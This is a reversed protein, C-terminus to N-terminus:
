AKRVRIPISAYSRFGAIAQRRPEGAPEFLAFRQLLQGFVVNAELRALTAGLCHHPGGGFGVHANPKRGVDLREPEDFQREDHNASGLLLVLIRDKKILRSGILMPERVVRGVNQIPADFRLFEEVATTVLSRDARLRALQDPFQLLAACGTAILNKTTEFGAFFLFLVNDVIEERTLREVGDTAALMHSLLDNRTQGRREKLLGDIYDRLWLIARNATALDQEPVQAGFAKCLDTARPRVEDRETVPIGILECVVMVPLPFALDLVADFHGRDLIPNLINDVLHGIHANLSHVLSPSFAPSMLQRLRTHAPADHNLIIRKFFSKAPSDGFSFQSYTDPFQHGLRSDRLLMVVDAYRTVVWQGPGGRCLPGVERLKAYTPYPNELLVPDMPDYKPLLIKEAAPMGPM